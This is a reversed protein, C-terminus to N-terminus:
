QLVYNKFKRKQVPFKSWENQDSWEKAITPYYKRFLAKIRDADNNEKM